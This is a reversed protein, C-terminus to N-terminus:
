SQNQGRICKALAKRIRLLMMRLSGGSRKSERAISELTKGGFYHSEIVQKSEPALREICEKLPAQENTDIFLEGELEQGKWDQIQRQLLNSEHTRRRAESRLHLRAKNKAIGVLWAKMSRQDDFRDLNTYAAVFVDQAIDDATAPCRIWKSVIMRIDGQHRRVIEGFAM